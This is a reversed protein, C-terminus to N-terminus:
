WNFTLWRMLFTHWLYLMHYLLKWIDAWCTPQTNITSCKILVHMEWTKYCLSERVMVYYQWNWASSWCGQWPCGSCWLIVCVIRQPTRRPTHKGLFLNGESFLVWFNKPATIATGAKVACTSSHAITCVRKWQLLWELSLPSCRELWCVMSCGSVAPSRFLAAGCPKNGWEHRRLGSGECWPSYEFQDLISFRLFTWAGIQKSLTMHSWYAIPNIIWRHPISSMEFTYAARLGAFTCPHCNRTRRLM